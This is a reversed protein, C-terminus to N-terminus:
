MKILGSRIAYHVLEANTRMGMKKVLRTRYTSVTKVSLTLAKAVESVTHGEGILRLVEYERASLTEHLPKDSPTVSRSEITELTRHGFYSGGGVVRAIAAILEDDAATKTLYGSAGASVVRRAFDEAPHISLIMVPLDSLTKKIQKLIELGSGDPLTLDLIVLDWRSADISALAEAGCSMEEVIARPYTEVIIAAVGRRVVPHDDVLLIRLADLENM